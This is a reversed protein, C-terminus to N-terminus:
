KESWKRDIGQLIFAAQSIANEVAAVEGPEAQGFGAREIEERVVVNCCFALGEYEILQGACATRAERWREHRM